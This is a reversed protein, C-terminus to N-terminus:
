KFAAAVIRELHEENFGAGQGSGAAVPSEHLDRHLQQMEIHMTSLKNVVMDQQEMLLDQQQVLKELILQHKDIKTNLLESDETQPAPRSPMLGGLGGLTPRRAGGGLTPRRTGGGLVALSARCEGFRTLKSHAQAGQETEEDSPCQPPHHEAGGCASGLSPTLVGSPQRKPGKLIAELLSRSRGRQDREGDAGLETMERPSGDSPIAAGDVGTTTRPAGEQDSGTAGGQFSARKSSRGHTDLEEDDDGGMM